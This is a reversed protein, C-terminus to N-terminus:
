DLRRLYDNLVAAVIEPRDWPALHTAGPLVALEGNRLHRYLM